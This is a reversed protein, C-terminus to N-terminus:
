ECCMKHCVKKELWCLVEGLDTWMSLYGTENPFIKDACYLHGPFPHEEQFERDDIDQECVYLGISMLEYKDVLQELAVRYRKLRSEIEPEGCRPPIFIVPVINNQLSLLVISQINANFDEVEIGCAADETGSVILIYCPRTRGLLIDRKFDELLVGSINGACSRNEIVEDDAFLGYERKKFPFGAALADGIVVGCLLSESHLDIWCKENM